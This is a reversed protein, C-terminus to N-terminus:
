RFIEHEINLPPVQSLQREYSKPYRDKIAEIWYPISFPSFFFISFETLTSKETHIASTVASFLLIDYLMSFFWGM